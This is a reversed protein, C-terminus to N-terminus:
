RRSSPQHTDSSAAGSDELPDESEGVEPKIAKILKQLAEHANNTDEDSLHEGSLKRVHMDVVVQSAATALEWVSNSFYLEVLAGADASARAAVTAKDRSEANNPDLGNVARRFANLAAIYDAAANIRREHNRYRRTEDQAANDRREQAQLAEAQQKRNSRQTLVVCALASGGAM